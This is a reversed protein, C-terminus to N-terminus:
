APLAEPRALAKLQYARGSAPPRPATAKPPKFEAGDRWMAFLIGALKRALAVVAVLWRRKERIRHAWDRLGSLAASKSRLIGGAVQVLLRRLLNNGRKTIRGLRRSDGSSREQPVLGVYAQAQHATAFRKPDDIVSRFLAATVPGVLARSREIIPDDGRLAELQADFKVIRATAQAIGDLTVELSALSVPLQALTVKKHFTEAECKPLMVGYETAKSRVFNIRETRQAVEMDRAEVLARLEKSKASPRHIAKFAGLRCAQALSRADGKDTKQKYAYTPAYGPDCVIVKSDGSVTEIASAVFESVTTAELLVKSPLWDALAKEIGSATTSFTLTALVKGEADVVCAVCKSKHVDIGIFQEM